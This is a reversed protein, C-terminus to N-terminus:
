RAGKRAPSESRRVKGSRTEPRAQAESDREAEGAFNVRKFVAIIELACPDCLRLERERIYYVDGGDPEDINFIKRCVQCKFTM